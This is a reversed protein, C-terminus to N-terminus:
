RRDSEEINTRYGDRELRRAAHNAEQRNRYSGELRWRHSGSRRYNVNYRVHDRRDREGPFNQYNRDRDRRDRESPFNQYNRDWGQASAIMPMSMLLGLGLLTAQVIIRKMAQGVKEFFSLAM